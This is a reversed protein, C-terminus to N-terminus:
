GVKDGLIQEYVALRREQMQGPNYVQRLSDEAHTVLQRQLQPNSSLAIVAEAFGAPDDVILCDEGDKFDIGEVGKATTVFPVKSLVADLIKMRMGSGIRIPVVAVSGKLFSGLDEVYGVLKLEPYESQLRNICEGRWKGIVQLTFSFHRKRLHPIVEHCFWAVADLNPFHDESGVFTLRGSQVPVFPQELRDGVQVVAPSTYIHFLMRDGATQERFLTIEKENRIYRLEHHVFITQVNEPLLFGLSLLEYFEVQIIDFGSHAVQSVYEVYGQDLPQFCSSFLTSKGRVLDVVEGTEDTWIQQRNMKRTVSAHIKQLWKYYFPHKIKPLRVTKTKPTYIFFDVNDWIKKLSEVDQMRRGTEPYLLVSVAMKHRLYEVMNFFAQNGGSDLPYPIYPIIFLIKKRM